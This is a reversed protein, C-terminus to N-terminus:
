RESAPNEATVVVLVLNCLLIPMLLVSEADSAGMLGLFVGWPEWQNQVITLQMSIKNYLMFFYYCFYLAYYIYHAQIVRSSGGRGQDM